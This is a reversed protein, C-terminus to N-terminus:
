PYAGSSQDGPAAAPRRAGQPRDSECSGEDSAGARSRRREGLYLWQGLAGSRVARKGRAREVRADDLDRSHHARPARQDCHEYFSSLRRETTSHASKLAECTKKVLRSLWSPELPRRPSPALHPVVTRHSLISPRM